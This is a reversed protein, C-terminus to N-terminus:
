QGDGGRLVTFVSELSPVTVEVGADRLLKRRREDRAYGVFPVGAERSAVADSPADGIMLASGPSVGMANVARTVLWPETRLGRLDATRGFVYPGFLGTLGRLELYKRVVRPSNNTVIGLPTGLASWMRIVPDAYATPMATAAARLEERTLREELEAILDSGPHRREAARAVMHPALLEHQVDTLLGHLGRSDLWELLDLASREASPGDFLRCIPGDFDFLVARSGTVLNRLPDPARSVSPRAPPSPAPTPPTPRGTEHLPQTGSQVARREAAEVERLGTAPNGTRRAAGRVLALYLGAPACPTWGEPQKLIFDLVSDPDAPVFAHLDHEWKDRPGRSWRGRLDAEGLDPLVARFFATWQHIRLDLGFGLLELDVADEPLVGLEERLGRHAAAHLSITSGDASVDHRRSLRQSVPANWRRPYGVTGASRRAFVMRSDAGTEVSVTVGMGCSLFPPANLSSNELFMTRLTASTDPDLPRDLNLTAALFDYYDADLLNLTVVAEAETLSRSVVVSEVAFRPHNWRHPEGAAAKRTEEAEIEDRWQRVVLPQDVRRAQHIVHVNEELIPRTGDGEYVHCDTVGNLLTFRDPFTHTMAAAPTAPSTDDALAAFANTLEAATPRAAPDPNLCSLLVGTLASDLGSEKWTGRLTGHNFGGSWHGTAAALLVAGVSYVDSAATGRTGEWRLAPSEFAGNPPFSARLGSVRGDVSATMWGVLQVGRDTVLVCNPSLAGHVLGLSHAHQLAAALDRGLRRLRARDRLAGQEELLTRLNPAPHVRADDSPSRACETALWPPSDGASHGLLRPAYTAAMRTLALAETRIAEEAESRDESLPVRVTVIDHAEDLGLFVVMRSWGAVNRAFLRYPGAQRPDEPLLPSWPLGLGLAQFATDPRLGDPVATRSSARGLPGPPNASPSTPEKPEMTEPLPVSVQQGTAHGQAPATARTRPGAAAPRLGLRTMLRTDLWSFPRSTESVRDHGQPDRLWAPFDPSRGALRGLQDAVTRTTRLLEHAPVTRLLIRRAEESFDFAQHLASRAPGPPDSRQMLGGLFVEALHGTDAPPDVAAQLLRMVPASAPAVAAIHAALRYAEPSAADRFRLVAEQPDAGRTDAYLRSRGARSDTWLPLVATTGLSAVVRAWAGVAAPEPELVPVPTSEFPVLDPPLVPDTVRWASNPEGRRRTTVQWQRANIGSGEWLRAPLAHIIATPGQRAWAEMSARMRGDRWAAGVGDSLVLVLTDGTPDTVLAPPLSIGREEYPRSRLLPAQPSRSDLGYVRIVRFAGSREMLARVESALRRWLLMSIGDDVLLTLTLWRTRVPRLVPDSLGTEAMATVTRAEDLEQKRPDPLRQKMPRLARGLRLEHRGLLKRAPVRVPLASWGPQNGTGHGSADPTGAAHLPRESRETGEQMVSVPPRKPKVTEDTTSPPDEESLPSPPAHPPRAARALPSDGDQPLQGALWLVDLLEEDSLEVGSDALVRRLRGPM